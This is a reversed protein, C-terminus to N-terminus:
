KRINLVLIYLLFIISSVNNYKYLVVICILSLAILCLMSVFTIIKNVKKNNEYIIKLISKCINFGDLPYIPLLNLLALFINIEFVFKIDNFLYALILNSLPGASFIIFEKIYYIRSKIEYEYKFYATMGSISILIQRAKKGLLNAIVIHALEHYMAFALCIYYFFLYNMAKRSVISILFVIILLYEIEIVLGKLKIKLGM